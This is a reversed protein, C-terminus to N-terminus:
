DLTSASSGVEGIGPASNRVFVPGEEVSARSRSNSLGRLMGGPSPNLHSFIQRIGTV